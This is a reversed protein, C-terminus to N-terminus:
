TAPSKGRPALRDDDRARGAGAPADLPYVRPTGSAPDPSVSVKWGYVAELLDKQVVEEPTGEAQVRGRHLFLLRDAFRAAVNLRHTILVVTKGAEARRRLLQLVEMEHRLDLNATPEDLALAEPRQALARAIRVRQAEGGSVEAVDRHALPELDCERLAEAVAQVDDPGEARFPGLHPYRGMAVMKRVSIPFALTEVQPVAGVRRALSPRTWSSVLKGDFSASGAEPRVIGLLARMFTSKGSGNPGIVGYFCGEPITASVENLAPEPNRGYRVVLKRAEFMM